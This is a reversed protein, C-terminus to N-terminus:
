VCYEETEPGLSLFIGTKESTQAGSSLAILDRRVAVANYRSTSNM